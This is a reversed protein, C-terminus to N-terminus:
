RVYWDHGTTIVGGPREHDLLEVLDKCIGSAVYVAPDIPKDTDGYGLMDPALVGFGRTMFYLVMRRWDSALSPNGHLFYLTPRSGQAPSYFYRYNFGRSIRFDKYFTHDMDKLLQSHAQGRM